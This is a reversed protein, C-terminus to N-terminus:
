ARDLYEAPRNNTIPIEVLNIHLDVLYKDGFNRCRDLRNPVLQHNEIPRDAGAKESCKAM